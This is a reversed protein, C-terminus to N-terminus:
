RDIEVLLVWSDLIAKAFSFLTAPVLWYLGALGQLIIAVGAILYPVLALQDMVMQVLTLRRYRGEAGQLTRVDIVTVTTWALLGTILVEMGLLRLPQGPVLLLSSVILVAVLLLLAAFARNPLRPTSLIKSLNISVCVLILGSLTAAAGLQASFFGQWQDM